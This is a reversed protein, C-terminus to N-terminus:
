KILNIPNVPEKDKTIGFYLHTGEEAYYSSVPAVEGINEAMSVADGIEVCVNMLQGYEAIYGNGMDISVVTGFEKSDEISIVKGDYAAAVDAGEIGQILIGPNCKYTDLTKFYITTDMSYPLIVDGVLPWTLSQEGEYNFEAMVDETIEEYGENEKNEANEEATNVQEADTKTSIEPVVVSNSDKNEKSEAVEESSFKEESKTDKNSVVGNSGAAEYDDLTDDEKQEVIPQNLDIAPEKSLKNTTAGYNYAIMMGAFAVIGISLAIYFGKSRLFDKFSKM